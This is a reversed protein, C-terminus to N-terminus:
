TPSPAIAAVRQWWAELEAKSCSLEEDLGSTFQRWPELYRTAVAVLTPVGAAAAEGIGHYLGKGEAELKGFRNVFLLDPRQAIAASVLHGIEALAATDIRCSRSHKGLDQLIPLHMGSALDRVHTDKCQCAEVEASVQIVGGLKFGRQALDEAFEAVIRNVDEGDSFVLAALSKTEHALHNTV